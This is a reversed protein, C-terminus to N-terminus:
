CALLWIKQIKSCKKKILQVFFPAGVLMYVIITSCQTFFYNTKYVNYFFIPYPTNMHQHRYNDSDDRMCCMVYFYGFHYM